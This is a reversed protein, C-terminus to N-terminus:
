KENIMKCMFKIREYDFLLDVMIDYNESTIDDGNKKQKITNKKDLKIVPGLKMDVQNCTRSNHCNKDILLIGVLNKIESYKVSMSQM